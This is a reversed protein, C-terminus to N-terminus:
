YRVPVLDEFAFVELDPLALEAAFAAKFPTLHFGNSANLVIASAQKLDVRM